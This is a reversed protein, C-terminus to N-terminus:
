FSIRVELVRGIIEVDGSRVILPEYVPNSPILALHNEFFQVRRLLVEDGMRVVCISNNHPSQDKEVLVLSGEIIHDGTMCDGEVQMFFCDDSFSYDSVPLYETINESAFMPLGAHVMGILPVMKAGEAPSKKQMGKILPTVEDTGLIYDASCGFYRVLQMLVSNPINVRGNEYQCVAAKQVGLIHGLDEQTLGRQARLEKLRNM